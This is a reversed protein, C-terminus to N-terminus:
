TEDNPSRKSEYNVGYLGQLAKVILDLKHRASHIRDFEGARELRRIEALCLAGARVLDRYMDKPKWWEADWPWGVPAGDARLPVIRPRIIANQYYLSAALLLEGARHRDDHEASFGEASIQRLREMRIAEIHRSIIM